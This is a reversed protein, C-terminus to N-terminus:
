KFTPQHAIGDLVRISRGHEPHGSRHAHTSRGAGNRPRRAASARHPVDDDPLRGGRHDAHTRYGLDIGILAAKKVDHERSVITSVAIVHDPDTAHRMGLLFGLSIISLFAIM